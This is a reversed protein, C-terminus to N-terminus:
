FKPYHFQVLLVDISGSTISFPSPRSTHIGTYKSQKVKDKVASKTSHVPNNNGKHLAFKYKSLSTAASTIVAYNKRQRRALNSVSEQFQNISQMSMPRHSKSCQWNKKKQCMPEALEEYM